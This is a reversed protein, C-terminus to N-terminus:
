YGYKARMEKFVLESDTVEGDEIQKEAKKLKELLNAEFIRKYEEVSIIIVDSKDKRKVLIADNINDEDLTKEVEQVSIVRQM